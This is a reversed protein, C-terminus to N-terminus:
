AAVRFEVLQESLPVQHRSGNTRWKMGRDRLRQTGIPALGVEAGVALLILPTDIFVGYPASDGVVLAVPAGAPLASALHELVRGIGAFYPAIVRSYEKGRPRRQREHELEASLRRVHAHVGPWEALQELAEEAEGVSSQQTTAVVMGSRVERCLEEWCNVAGSFYLELRTADAYDFNNLYPPSSIAGVAQSLDALAWTAAKRGDGHVVTVNPPDEPWRALDEAMMTVRRLLYASPDTSRADRPKSPLQYPWGVNIAAHARLNALLALEIHHRWPSRSARIRERLAVLSGLMAPEFARRVLEHEDEISAPSVDTTIDAAAARLDAVTGPCDFKLAAAHSIWPHADIGVFAHGKARATTGVTGVGCFPDIVCGVQGVADLIAFAAALAPQSFGAPYRLWRDFPLRPSVGNATASATTDPREVVAITHRVPELHAKSTSAVEPLLIPRQTAKPIRTAQEDLTSRTAPPCALRAPAHLRDGPRAWRGETPLVLLVEASGWRAVNQQHRTPAPHFSPRKSVIPFRLYGRPHTTWCHKAARAKHGSATVLVVCALTVVRPPTLPRLDDQCVRHGSWRPDLM